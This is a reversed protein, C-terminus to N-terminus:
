RSLLKITHYLLSAGYGTGGKCCYSNDDSLWNVSAMDIHMWPKNEAFEQIFLGAVITGGGMTNGPNSSKIDAVASDLVSRLEKDADLRWIKECSCKSATHCAEYLVEDNALVVACRGGVAGKASGTLTAIDIIQEAGEKRIAYTIADALTLRGEADANLMEITKGNMSVLIDGPVYADGSIMNKCAAVVVVLNIPLKQLAIAQVAGIVAAAGGMDDHMTAMKSKMTYGGSDFMVGKGVLALPKQEPDGGHYRMVILRPEDVAGRAVALFTDMGLAEIAPKEFLEVEIGCQEGVKQAEICLQAPTMFMSPHNVLDRALMTGGACATAEAILSEIDAITSVFVVEEMAPTKPASKYATFEYAVLYPLELLKECIGPEHTVAAANEFLVVTKAAKLDKCKKLAKAFSLFIERPTNTEKSGLGSLVIHFLKGDRCITVVSVDGCSGFSNAESLAADVAAKIDEPLTVQLNGEATFPILVANCNLCIDQMMSIKM